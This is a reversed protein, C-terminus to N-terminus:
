RQQKLVPNGFTVKGFCFTLLAYIVLPIILMKMDAHKMFFKFLALSSVMFHMFNGIAVPKSYIGGILNGKAMWNLAAFGLYLSGLVQFFLPLYNEDGLDLVRVIEDPMFSCVLGVLGMVIASLMMLLRTNM